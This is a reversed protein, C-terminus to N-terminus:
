RTVIRLFRAARPTVHGMGCEIPESVFQGTGDDIASGCGSAIGWRTNDPSHERLTAIARASLAAEEGAPLPGLAGGVLREVFAAMSALRGDLEANSPGRAVTLDRLGALGADLTADKGCDSEVEVRLQDVFTMVDSLMSPDQLASPDAVLERMAAVNMRTSETLCPSQSALDLTEKGARLVAARDVAPPPPVVDPSGSRTTGDPLVLIAWPDGDVRLVDHAVTADMFTVDVQGLRAMTAADGEMLVRTWWATCQQRALAATDLRTGTSYAPVSVVLLPRRDPAALAEHLSQRADAAFARVFFGPVAAAVGAVLFQRRKVLDELRGM